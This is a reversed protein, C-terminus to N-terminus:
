RKIVEIVVRRNLRRGEKTANDGIPDAEGKGMVSMVERRVEGRTALYDSVAAARRESLKLNYAEAGTSDTYGVVNLHELDKRLLPRHPDLKAIVDDLEAKDSASLEASNLAFELNQIFSEAVIASSTALVAGDKVVQTEEIVAVAAGAPANEVEVTQSKERMYGCSELLEDSDKYTTRVCDGSSSTWTEGSANKAYGDVMEAAQVSLSLAMAIAAAISTKVTLQSM